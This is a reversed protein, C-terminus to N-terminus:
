ITIFVQPCALKNRCPCKTQPEPSLLMLYTGMQKPTEEVKLTFKVIYVLIYFTSNKLGDTYPIDIDVQAHFYPVM